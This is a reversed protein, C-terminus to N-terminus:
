VPPSFTVTVTKIKELSSGPQPTQEVALGTGELVVVLGLARGGKLVDRMSQGTFDPLLGSPKLSGKSLSETNSNRKSSGTERQNEAFRIQPPIRLHHLTWAGVEQFAPAAVLGGYHVPKPEDVMVLIVLEPKDTPVFGIFSAVYNEYSYAKTKPDM